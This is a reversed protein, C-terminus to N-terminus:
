VSLQESTILIYSIEREEKTIQELANQAYM